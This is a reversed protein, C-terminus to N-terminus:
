LLIIKNSASLLLMIKNENVKAIITNITNM